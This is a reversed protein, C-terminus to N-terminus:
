QVQIANVKGNFMDLVVMNQFVVTARLTVPNAVPVTTVNQVVADKRNLRARLSCTLNSDPNRRLDVVYHRNYTKWDYIQIADKDDDEAHERSIDYLDQFCESDTIKDSDYHLTNNVYLNFNTLAATAHDCFYSNDSQRPILNASNPVTEFDVYRPLTVSQTVNWDIAGAGVVATPYTYTNYGLYPVQVLGSSAGFWQEIAAFSISDLKVAEYYLRVNQYQVGTPLLRETNPIGAPAPDTFLRTSFGGANVALAYDSGAKKMAIPPYHGGVLAHFDITLQQRIGTCLGAQAYFDSLDCLPVRVSATWSGAVLTWDTSRYRELYSVEEFSTGSNTAQSAELFDVTAVGGGADDDIPRPTSMDIHSPIPQRKDHHCDKSMGTLQKFKWFQRINQNNIITAEGIRAQFSQIAALGGPEKFNIIPTLAGNVAATYAANTLVVDFSLYQTSMDVWESLNQLTDFVARTATTGSQLPTLYKLEKDSFRISPQKPPRVLEDVLNHDTSIGAM